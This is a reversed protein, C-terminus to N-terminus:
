EVPLPLGRIILEQDMCSIKGINPGNPSVQGATNPSNDRRNGDSQATCFLKGTLFPSTPFELIHDNGVGNQDGANRLGAGFPVPPPLNVPNRFVEFVKGHRTVFAVANRENADVWINGFVDLAIGDGGELIPHAVFINSLCLTNPTFTTDCGTPSKLNGYLDFEIKWLAGRATDINFLDGRRNFALGNAVLPQSGLQNAANRTTDTVLITGPPLSRVDRGVGGVDNVLNVTNSMPQIRFVEECNIAPTSTCNAGPSAIKWVRGQGTTGDSVWLNGKKDFAIGNAGPVGSAFPTATPPYAASPALVWIVGVSLDAIYLNGAADFAIGLPNCQAPNNPIFGVVVLDPQDKSIKWVPCPELVPAVPARGTTYLNGTRDGTLGEIALPTPILTTFTADKPFPLKDEDGWASSGQLNPLSKPSFSFLLTAFSLFIILSIWRLKMNKVETNTYHKLHILQM